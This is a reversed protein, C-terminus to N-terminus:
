ILGLLECAERANIATPELPGAHDLLDKDGTVIAEAGAERALALLYDDAPDRLVAEVESPEEHMTAAEAIGIVIEALEDESVRERFYPKRLGREVEVILRPCAILEFRTGALDAYLLSPPSEGHPDASGSVLTTADVVLRRL